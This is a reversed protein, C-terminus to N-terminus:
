FEPITKLSWIRSPLHRGIKVRGDRAQIMLHIFTRNKRGKPLVHGQVAKQTEAGSYLPLDILYGGKESISHLTGPYLSKRQSYSYYFSRKATPFKNARAANEQVTSAFTKSYYKM